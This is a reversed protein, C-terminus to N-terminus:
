EVSQESLSPEDPSAEDSPLSSEDALIAEAMAMEDVVVTDQEVTGEEEEGVLPGTEETDLESPVDDLVPAAEAAPLVPSQDVALEEEILSQPLPVVIISLPEEVVVSPVILEEVTEKVTALTEELPPLPSPKLAAPPPPPALDGSGRRALESLREAMSRRRPPDAPAPAPASAPTLPFPLPLMPPLEEVPTAPLPVSAAEVISPLAPLADPVPGLVPETVVLSPTPLVEPPPIPPLQPTSRVTIPSNRGPSSEARRSVYPRPTTPTTPTPLDISARPTAPAAAVPLAKAAIM